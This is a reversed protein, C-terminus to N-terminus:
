SKPKRKIIKKIKTLMKPKALPLSFYFKSGKGHSSEFWIQGQMQEVYQRSIYMGLGTGTVGKRDDHKVRYFKEFMGAKQDDPIGLGDDEVLTVLQSGKTSHSLTVHGGPRNYKIANSVLNNVVIRLRQEDALIDAAQRSHYVLTVDANKAVVALSNLVDDIITEIPLTVLESMAAESELRAVNLMDNVLDRLRVTSHYAQDIIHKEKADLNKEHFDRFLSLNGIIATLPTRLEHTALSIFEKNKEDLAKEAASIRQAMSNMTDALRLFEGDAHDLSIRYDLKGAGFIIAGSVLTVINRLMRQIFFTGVWIFAVMFLGIFIIGALQADHLPALVAATPSAVAVLWQSSGAPAAVVTHEVNDLTLKIFRNKRLSVVNDKFRQSDKLVPYAPNGQSDLVVALARSRDIPAGAWTQRVFHENNLDYAALVSGGAIPYAFVALEFKEATMLRGRVPNSLAEEAYPRFVDTSGQFVPSLASSVPNKADDIVVLALTEPFLQKFASLAENVSKSQSKNMEEGLRTYEADLAATTTGSIALGGSFGDCSGGPAGRFSRTIRIHAHCIDYNEDLKKRDAAFQNKIASLGTGTQTLVTERLTFDRELSAATTAASRKLDDIAQRHLINGLQWLAAASLILLAVFPPALVRLIFRRQLNGEYKNKEEPM